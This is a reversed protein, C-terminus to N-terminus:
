TSSSRIIFFSLFPSCFIKVFMGLLKCETYHPAGSVVVAENEHGDGRSDSMIKGDWHIVAFKPKKVAFQAKVQKDLEVRSENRSREVTSTSLSFDDLNVPQGDPMKQDRLLSSFLRTAAANSIKGRDLSAALTPSRLFNRDLEITVTKSRKPKPINCNYDQDLDEKSETVDETLADLSKDYAACVPASTSSIPSSFPLMIPIEEFNKVNNVKHVFDSHLVSTSSGILFHHYKVKTQLRTTTQQKGKKAKNASFKIEQSKKIRAESPRNESSDMVRYEVDIQEETETERSASGEATDASASATVELQDTEAEGKDNYTNVDEFGHFYPLEDLDQFKLFSFQDNIFNSNTQKDTDTDM